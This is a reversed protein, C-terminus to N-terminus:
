VSSRSSSLTPFCSGTLCIGMIGSWWATEWPPCFFGLIYFTHAAVLAQPLHRITSQSTQHVSVLHFPFPMGRRTLHNHALRGKFKEDQACRSMPFASFIEKLFITPSFVVLYSPELM